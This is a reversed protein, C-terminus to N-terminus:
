SQRKYTTTIRVSEGTREFTEKRECRQALLFDEKHFSDASAVHRKSARPARVLEDAPSIGVIEDDVRICGHDEHTVTRSFSLQQGGAKFILISKLWGILRSGLLFSMLRLAIHKPPTSLHEVHPYLKGRVAIRTEQADVTWDQSWWHSVFDKGSRRVIWGFDAVFGGDALKATFIGGKKGSVLLSSGAKWHGSGPLYNSTNSPM